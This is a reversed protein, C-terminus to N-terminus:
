SGRGWRAMQGMCTHIVWGFDDGTMPHDMDGNPGSTLTYKAGAWTFEDGALLGSGRPVAVQGGQAVSTGSGSQLAPGTLDIVAPFSGVAADTKNGDADEIPRTFAVQPAYPAQILGM